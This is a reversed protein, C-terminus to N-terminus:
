VEVGFIDRVANRFQSRTLRRLMGAAPQFAPPNPIRGDEDGQAPGPTTGGSGGAGSGGSPSQGAAAGGPPSGDAGPGTLDATCGVAWAACLFLLSQVPSSSSFAKKM